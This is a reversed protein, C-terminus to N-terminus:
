GWMQGAAGPLGRLRSVHATRWGTIYISSSVLCEPHPHTGAGPPRIRTTTARRPRGTSDRASYLGPRLLPTQPLTSRPSPAPGRPRGCRPHELLGRCPLARSLWGVETRSFVASSNATPWPFAVCLPPLLRHTVQRSCETFATTSKRRPTMFSALHERGPLVPGAGEEDCSWLCLDALEPYFEIKSDGKRNVPKTWRTSKRIFHIIFAVNTVSFTAVLFPLLM